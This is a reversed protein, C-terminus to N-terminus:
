MSGVMLAMDGTWTSGGELSVPNFQPLLYHYWILVYVNNITMFFFTRGIIEPLSVKVSEVCVFNNYGM